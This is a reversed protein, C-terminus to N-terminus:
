EPPCDAAKRIVVDDTAIVARLKRVAFTCSKKEVELTNQIKRKAFNWPKQMEQEVVYKECRCFMGCLM